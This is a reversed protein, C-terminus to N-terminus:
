IHSFIHTDAYSSSMVETDETTAKSQSDRILIQHLETVPRKQLSFRCSHCQNVTMYSCHFHIITPAMLCCCCCLFMIELYLIKSQSLAAIILIRMNVFSQIVLHFPVSTVFGCLIIM